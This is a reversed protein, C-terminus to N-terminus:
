RLTLPKLGYIEFAAPSLFHCLSICCQDAAVACHYIVWKIMRIDYTQTWVIKSAAPSLLHCFSLHCQNGAIACYYFVWTIMQLDLTQTWVIQSATPSLLHCILYVVNTPPLLVTTSCESLLGLTLPEISNLSKVQM